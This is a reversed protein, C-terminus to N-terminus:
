NRFSARFEDNGSNNQQMININNISGKSYLATHLESIGKVLVAWESPKMDDHIMSDAQTLLNM